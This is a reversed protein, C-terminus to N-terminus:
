KIKKAIILLDRENREEKYDELSLEIKFNNKILIKHVEKKDLSSYYFSEGFMYDNKEGGNKGHTFLIYAGINMWNSIKEYIETQKEKPFHFFSDFAIIGDYKEIPEFKFFDCIYFHTNIMKRDIAKKIMNESIDIGTVFFGNDSFYKAIPYGTGCGIDLLKGNAKLKKSFKIICDNLPLKNRYENWKEVIKNYSEKNIEMGNEGIYKTDM